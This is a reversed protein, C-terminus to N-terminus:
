HVLKSKKPSAKKKAKKKTPRLQYPRNFLEQSTKFRESLKRVVEKSMGRRYNLIDSMLSKSIKLTKAMDVSKIKYDVMFSKLIRVPDVDGFTDHENDYHETLVQLLEIVDREEKTHKKKKFVLDRLIRTYAYYQKDNKIAKYPLPAM